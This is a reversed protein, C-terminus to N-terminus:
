PVNASVENSYVSENGSADVATAVYYYTAGSQVGSDAYSASAVLSGNVRTYSSGSVTSRYVNYGAVTSTSASWNLAVSHSVAAVGTGSLSVSPSGTANSLIAVSGSAAGAVTPAFQVSVSTSQNPSLTVAGAGSVISYGAGSATIGSVAVNANGTNTITFGQATTSGDNVSGFSLSGPNVSLTSTAAVATGSLAITAPSANSVIAISGSATGATQPAYQANFSGSQGPALTLPLSLGSLSFGTGSVTAQSVVLNATGTNMLQVTQSNTNGTVVSGFNASGPTISLGAQVGTGAVTETAVTGDSATVAVVGTTAGSATPAYQVGLSMSQSPALTVPSSFGSVSIGTGSATVQTVTESSNGTNSVQVTQTANSGANVNGFNVSAPSFALTHSASVGTGALAVTAPSNPANSMISVSGSASGAAQPAYQVSFSGSQGPTLTLPLTMGSGSFGTGTVTAQSIVLNATGSNKLQVTQTGTNGTIVSGFSASGPTVTLGAQVGTGTVVAAASIGDANTVSVGGNVAGSTTPAFQAILTVSQSPALTLPVPAGSVSIGTGSATVQTVTVGSNGTNSLVVNQTASSGANVNGFNLSVPSLSMTYSASVGTGSLAVTATANSANSAISISGSVAGATTPAFTAQLAVSQGAAITVPAALGSVSFPGGTLSVQSVSIDSSGSNNLTVAQTSSGNVLVTGFNLGAASLSLKSQPQSSAGRLHVKSSSGGHATMATLTGASIGSTTGTYSVQFKAFQGPGITLPTSIGTTAFQTSSSSLQTITVAENSTNMLTALQTMKQGPTVNAFNITSPSIQVAEQPTVASNTALGACGSLIAGGFIVAVALAGIGWKSAAKSSAM